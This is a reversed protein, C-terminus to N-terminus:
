KVKKSSKYKTKPKTKAVKKENGLHIMTQPFPIEIGAKDFAFKLRKRYERGVEWQLIPKTKLRAKIVVASDDFRDVGFVELDEIIKNKFDESERLTKGVEKMVKIVVDIDEKYAVGIEFVTASWKKTKNALSDIKGNQFVHVTGEMDRMIITRLGIQEILGSTGNIVAIDGTRIQNEILIFFGSLFDRVLQQSGFGLAVGVIGAGTLLPAVNVGFKKLIIMSIIIWIFVDLIKKVIGSLTEVRKEYEGKAIDDLNKTRKMAIRKINKSLIKSVQFLVIAIVLSVVITPLVDEAFTNFKVVFKDFM